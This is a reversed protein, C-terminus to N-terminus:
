SNKFYKNYAWIGGGILAIGGVIYWVNIGFIKAPEQKAHEKAAVDKAQETTDVQPTENTEPTDVGTRKAKEEPPEVGDANSYRDTVVDEVDSLRKSKLSNPKVTAVEDLLHTNSVTTVNM